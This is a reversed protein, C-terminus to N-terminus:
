SSKQHALSVIQITPSHNFVLSDSNLSVVLEWHLAKSNTAILLLDIAEKMEIILITGAKM